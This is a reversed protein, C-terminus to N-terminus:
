KVGCIDFVVAGPAFADAHKEIWPVIAEPPLCVAVLDADALAAPGDGHHLGVTEYGAKLSAKYFSGGILGMGVVAVKM